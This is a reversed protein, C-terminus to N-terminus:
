IGAGLMLLLEMASTTGASAPVVDGLEEYLDHLNPSEVMRNISDGVGTENRSPM